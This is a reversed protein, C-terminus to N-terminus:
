VVAAEGLARVHLEDPTISTYHLQGSAIQQLLQARTQTVGSSHTYTLDSALYPRLAATDAAVMAAFRARELDAIASEAGGTGAPTREVSCGALALLLLCLRAARM